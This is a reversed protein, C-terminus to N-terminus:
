ADSAIISAQRYLNAQRASITGAYGDGAITSNGMMPYTGNASGGPQYLSVVRRSPTFAVPQGDSTAQAPFAGNLASMFSNAGRGPSRGLVQTLARQVQREMSTADNSSSSRAAGSDFATQQNAAYRSFSNAIDNLIPTNANESHAGPPKSPVFLQKLLGARYVKRQGAHISALNLGQFNAM